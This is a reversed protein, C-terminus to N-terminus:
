LEQEPLYLSMQIDNDVLDIKEAKLFLGNEMELQDLRLLIIKEDPKVEVWNPLHYDRQVFRLIDPIPLGLTGLSLSKAKLQINGDETVYPDFYLNFQIPYGLVKFTGSLLAENELYFTYQLGSDKQYEDLYFAMLANVKEKTSRFELVSTGDRKIIQESVRPAERDQSLRIGFFVVVGALCGVLTIFAIKWYNRPKKYLESPEPQSATIQKEELHEQQEENMKKNESVKRQYGTLDPAFWKKM